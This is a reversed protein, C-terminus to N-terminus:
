RILSLDSLEIRMTVRIKSSEGFVVSAGEGKMENAMSLWESHIHKLHITGVRDDYFGKGEGCIIIM